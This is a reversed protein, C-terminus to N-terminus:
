TSNVKEPYLLALEQAIFGGMSLGLVDVLKGIKLADVLAATDNALQQISYNRNDNFTADTFGMGRNDFLIVTHNTSLKEIMLPDWMDMTM